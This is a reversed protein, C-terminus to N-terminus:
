VIKKRARWRKIEENHQCKNSCYKQNIRFKIYVRKCSKCISITKM